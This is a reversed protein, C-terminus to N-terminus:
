SVGFSPPEALMGVELDLDLYDSEAGLPVLRMTEAVFSAVEDLDALLEAAGAPSALDIRLGERAPFVQVDGVGSPAHLGTVLLDRAFVWEVPPNGPLTFIVRVAFPDRTLYRLETDVAITVEGPQFTMMTSAIVGRHRNDLHSTAM